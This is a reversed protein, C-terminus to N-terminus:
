DIYWTGNNGGHRDAMAVTGVMDMVGTTGLMGQMGAM